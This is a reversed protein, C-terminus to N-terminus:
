RRSSTVVAQNSAAEGTARDFGVLANVLTTCFNGLPRDSTPITRHIQQHARPTRTVLM